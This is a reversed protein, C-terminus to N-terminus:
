PAQGSCLSCLSATQLSAHCHDGENHVWTFGAQLALVCLRPNRGADPPWTILDVSRGDFHLSYRLTENTQTLDHDLLSDYAETIMVQTAEGWEAKVLEVLRALPRLLAPHMLRDEGGYPAPESGSYLLDPDQNSVLRSFACSNRQIQCVMPGVAETETLTYSGSASLHAGLPIEDPLSVLGPLATPEPTAGIVSVQSEVTETPRVATPLPPPTRPGACAALVVALALGGAALRNRCV